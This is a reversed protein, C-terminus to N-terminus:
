LTTSFVDMILFLSKLLITENIHVQRIPKREFPEIGAEDIKIIKEKLLNWSEFKSRQFM